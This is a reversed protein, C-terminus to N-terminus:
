IIKKSLMKLMNKWLIDDNLLKITKYCFIKDNECVYGTKNNIIRENMCGNNMVVSPLEVMQAEALAM